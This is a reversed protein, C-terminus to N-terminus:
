ASLEEILARVRSKIEDRIKRVTEIDQGAPDDLGWDETVLFTAPCSQSDVGCGMSVIRHCSNAMEQTLRKPVQKSLDIGDEAMVQVAVPNLTGAGLTGASAAKLGVSSGMSNFYAEAMQSRGANHVCVFLVDVSM